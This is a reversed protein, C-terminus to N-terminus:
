IEKDERLIWFRRFMFWQSPYRRVYEEIVKVYSETIRRVDDEFGDTTNYPIPKEFTFQFTDDPLRIIFAPVISAGTRLSLIAPGKPISSDKGFFNVRIGHNSFDRDGLLALVQGKTLCEYCKKLAVGMQIVNIKAIRRQRIFFNNVFKNQHDLAVANLPYGCLAVIAGGLEYNGLHATLAIVGKGRRLAEDFNGKGVFKVNGRIYSEDLKSFRFFDVLYKAFNVFVEKGIHRLTRKDDTKLVAKLNDLVVERDKKSFYFQLIALFRAFSYGARVPLLLALTQATKYILFQFM